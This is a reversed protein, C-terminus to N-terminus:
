FKNNKNIHVGAAVRNTKDVDILMMTDNPMNASKARQIALRLKFNAEPDPGGGAKVAIQIEKALKTFLAGRRSDTVAKKRKISAWKSHGSM